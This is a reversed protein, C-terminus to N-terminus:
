TLYRRNIYIHSLCLTLILGILGILGILYGVEIGRIDLLLLIQNILLLLLDIRQILMVVLCLM